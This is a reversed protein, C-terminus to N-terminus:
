DPIFNEREQKRCWLRFTQPMTEQGLFSSSAIRRRQQRTRVARSGTRANKAGGSTLIRNAGAKIAGELAQRLDATEDFARHYTVPLPRALEVLERTREIDVRRDKTLIGLVVGDMGSEKAEAISRKMQTLETDSYVFDGARARIMVFIPIRVQARVTRMLETSPTLGGLSLNDCLEVRDAGGREAALAAELSEISIELIYKRNMPHVALIYLVRTLTGSSWNWYMGLFRPPTGVGCFSVCKKQAILATKGCCHPTSSSGSRASRSFARSSGTPFFVFVMAAEVFLFAAILFKARVRGILTATTRRGSLRDPEIDMVEGFIHSHMAFMAGFLFTQWPLQPVKNLWSSLVFVLLYSSQILVDFPPRGKWAIGPANYLGVAVLLMAYWWLIRPGVLFYFAVVFPIQVAAIQWKLAALQERAGRSGFMFTGKRPNLADTEADVIDNVGYLLFSLPFLGFILGLWLRAPVSSIRM